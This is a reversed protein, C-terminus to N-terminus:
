FSCRTHPDTVEGTILNLDGASIEATSDMVKHQVAALKFFVPASLLGEDASLGGGPHTEEFHTINNVPPYFRIRVRGHLHSDAIWLGQVIATRQHRGDREAAITTHAPRLADGYYSANTELPLM